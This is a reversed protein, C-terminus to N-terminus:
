TARGARHGADGSRHKVPDVTELPYGANAFKSYM